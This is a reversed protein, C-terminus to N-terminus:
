GLGGRAEELRGEVGLGCKRAHQPTSGSFDVFAEVLYPVETRAGLGSGQLERPDEAIFCKIKWKQRIFFKPGPLASSPRSSKSVPWASSVAGVPQTQSHKVQGPLCLEQSVASTFPQGSPLLESSRQPVNVRLNKTLSIFQM